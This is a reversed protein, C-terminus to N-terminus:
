LSKYLVVTVYKALFRHTTGLGVVTPSSKGKQTYLHNLVGHQPRSLPPQIEMNTEAVNLLTMQLLPPVLPPEKAYDESSLQLNDYSSEPSQPPEFSSISGIDEPVYDQLDLINYANGADDRAWPSDPTYRKLGDVIFRFQYVGSPLVKMIAFDKGSRQLPMRAKWNDWSGEVAVEKGGYSWTIMTPIGPESFMDEYGSTTEVSSYSPVHMEESTQLPVEPLQPTFVFPSITPPSHPMANGDASAEEAEEESGRVNVNGM